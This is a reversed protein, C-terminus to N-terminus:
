RSLEDNNEVTNTAESDPEEDTRESQFNEKGTPVPIFSFYSVDLFTVEFIHGMHDAVIDFVDRQEKDEMIARIHEPNDDRLLRPAVVTLTPMAATFFGKGHHRIWETMDYTYIIVYEENLIKQPSLESPSISVIRLEYIEGSYFWQFLTRRLVDQVDETMSYPWINVHVGLKSEYFLADANSTNETLVKNILLAISTVPSAGLIAEANETRRDYLLKFTRLDIKDTRDVTRFLWKEQNNILDIAAEPDHYYLTGIRTDQLDDLSVLINPM